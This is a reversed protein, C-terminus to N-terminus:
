NITKLYKKLKIYLLNMIDINILERMYNKDM